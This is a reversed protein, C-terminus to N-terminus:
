ATLNLGLHSVFVINARAQARIIGRSDSDDYTRFDICRATERALLSARPSIESYALVGVRYRMKM